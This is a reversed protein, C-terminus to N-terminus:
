VRVFADDWELEEVNRAKMKGDPQQETLFELVAGNTRLAAFEQNTVQGGRRSFDRIHCFIDDRVDGAGFGTRTTIFGYGKVEDVFHMTGRQRRDGDDRVLGPLLFGSFYNDAEEKLQSSTNAFSLVDVRKGRSQLARVLRVFDGDGTGILIYDLNDSQLLADCALDLDANAKTIIEGDENRYRMVQKLTLHFGNRRIASRYSDKKQRVVQDASERTTDIAMYANARLVTVGQAEAFQRVVDYRIGWGGNQMLNEMDLFIGGKLM